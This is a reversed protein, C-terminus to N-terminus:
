PDEMQLMSFRQSQSWAVVNCKELVDRDDPISIGSRFHDQCPPSQHRTPGLFGLCVIGRDIDPNLRYGLLLGVSGGKLAPAAQDASPKKSHFTTLPLM